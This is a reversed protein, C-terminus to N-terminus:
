LTLIPDPQLVHEICGAVRDGESLTTLAFIEVRIELQCEGERPEYLDHALGCLVDRIILPLTM